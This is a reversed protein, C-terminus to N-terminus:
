LGLVDGAPQNILDGITHGRELQAHVRQIGLLDVNRMAGYPTHLFWAKATESELDLTAIDNFEEFLAPDPDLDLELYRSNKEVRFVKQRYLEDALYALGETAALVLVIFWRM